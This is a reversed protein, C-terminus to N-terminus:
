IGRDAVGFTAPQHRPRSYSWNTGPEFLVAAM